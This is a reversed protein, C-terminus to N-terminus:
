KAAAGLARLKALWKVRAADDMEEVSGILTERVPTIGVFKLVNRELGKLGHALFYWRYVPGPMGMTVVLRATRGVLLRRWKKGSTDMAFGPRFTQELFAKVLAPMTGLWLPFLIVLHEGWEITKQAKRIVPPPTGKEYDEKTRLLPFELRALDIVRIEHGAGRAGDAYAAALAHLFRNGAPDPHGQVIVVRV